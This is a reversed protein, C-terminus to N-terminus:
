KLEERRQQMREENSVRALAFRSIFFGRDTGLDCMVRICGNNEIETVEYIKGCTLRPRQNKVICRVKDGKKFPNM